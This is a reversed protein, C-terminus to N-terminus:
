AADGGGMLENMSQLRKRDRAAKFDVPKGQPTGSRTTNDEFVRPGYIEGITPQDTGWWQSAITRAIIDKHGDLDIDPYEVVRLYVRKASESPNGAGTLVGIRKDTQQNFEAIIRETLQWATEDVPKGNVRPRARVCETTSEPVPVPEPVPSVKETQIGNPNRASCGKRKRELDKERKAIVDARSPQYDGFDKFRFGETEADEIWLGATVLHEAHEMGNNLKVWSAPILGDTLNSNSWTLAALWLGIPAWGGQARVEIVKPHEHFRDDVKAWAM